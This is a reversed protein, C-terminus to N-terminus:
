NNLLWHHDFLELLEINDEWRYRATGLLGKRDPKSILVRCSNRKEGILAVYLAWRMRIAKIM